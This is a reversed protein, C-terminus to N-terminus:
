DKIILGIPIFYMNAVCHEFGCAMFATILFVISM